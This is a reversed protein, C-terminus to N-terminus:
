PHADWQLDAGRAALGNADSLSRCYRNAATSCLQGNLYSPSGTTDKCATAKRVFVTKSQKHTKAIAFTSNFLSCHLHSQDLVAACNPLGDCAALCNSMDGKLVGITSASKDTIDHSGHVEYTCNARSVTVAPSSTSTSLTTPGNTTQSINGPPGVTSNSEDSKAQTLECGLAWAVLLLWLGAVM